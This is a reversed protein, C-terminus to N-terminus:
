RASGRRAADDAAVDEGVLPERQRAPHRHEPWSKVSTSASSEVAWATVGPWPWVTSTAPTSTPSIEPTRSSSPRAITVSFSSSSSRGPRGSALSAAAAWSRGSPCPRRARRRARRLGALQSSPWRIGIPWVSGSTLRSSIRATARRRCACRGAAAATRRRRLAQPPLPRSAPSCSGGSRASRARCACSRRAARWAARLVDLADDVVERQRRRARRCPRGARRTRRSSSRRTRRARRGPRSGAPSAAPAATPASRRRSRARCPRRAPRRARARRELRQPGARAREARREHLRPREQALRRRDDLVLDAREHARRPRGDLLQPRRHLSRAASM